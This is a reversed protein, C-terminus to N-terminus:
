FYMYIPNQTGPHVIFRTRLQLKKIQMKTNPIESQLPSGFGPPPPPPPVIGSQCKLASRRLLNKDVQRALRGDNHTLLMRSYERAALIRWLLDADISIGPSSIL